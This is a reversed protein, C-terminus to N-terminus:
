GSVSGTIAGPSDHVNVQNGGIQSTAGQASQVATEAPPPAVDNPREDVTEGWGRLISKVRRISERESTISTVVHPPTYLALRAQQDLLVDLNGRYIELLRRQQAIEEPSAM